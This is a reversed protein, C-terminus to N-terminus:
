EIQHSFCGVLEGVQFRMPGRAPEAAELAEAVGYECDRQRQQDDLDLDGSRGLARM